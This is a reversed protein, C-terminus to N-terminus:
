LWHKSHPHPLIEKRKVWLDFRDCGCCFGDAGLEKGRWFGQAGSVQGAGPMHSQYKGTGQEKERWVKRLPKLNPVSTEKGRREKGTTSEDWDM